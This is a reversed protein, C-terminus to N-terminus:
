KGERAWSAAITLANATSTKAAAQQAFLEVLPLDKRDRLEQEVRECRQVAEMATRLCTPVREPIVRPIPQEAFHAGCYDGFTAPQQCRTCTM